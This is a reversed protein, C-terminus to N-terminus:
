EYKIWGKGMIENVMDFVKGMGLGQKSPMWVQKPNFNKWEGDYVPAEPKYDPNDTWQGGGICYEYLRPHTKKLMVFRSESEIHTGFGCFICGTRKCGSCKLKGCGFGTKADYEMGDEDKYVIDGYVSCIEIDNDLLYQLVDQETWVSFPKSNAMRGDYINCGSRIWAQKRALSEEAMVGTIAKNGSKRVYENMPNKKMVSCCHDGIIVPLNQTLELYKEKNLLSGKGETKGPLKGSLITRKYKCRSTNIMQGNYKLKTEDIKIGDMKRSYYILNAVEKSIIPYGYKKIVDSFIMKPRVAIVNEHSLAFQRIEPYELGTDSFVAPVDGYMERVLHLLATSDKGGSFAVYVNGNWHEYWQRIRNKAISIKASLPLSQYQPLDSAQHRFNEM